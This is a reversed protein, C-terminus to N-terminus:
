CSCFLKEANETRTSGNPIQDFSQDGNQEDIRYRRSSSSSDEKKEEQKSVRKREATKNKRTDNESSEEAKVEKSDHEKQDQQNSNQNETKNVEEAREEVKDQSPAVVVAAEDM